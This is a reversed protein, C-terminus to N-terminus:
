HSTPKSPVVAIGAPSDATVADAIKKVDAAIASTATNMAKLEVVIQAAAVALSHVDSFLSM